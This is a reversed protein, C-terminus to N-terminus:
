ELVRDLQRTPEYALYPGLWRETDAVSQGKRGAYDEVQDRGIPYVAFYRAEPHAFYVGSVSSAPWMAYSETLSVGVADEAALLDFLARKETHDPQAPYGPAPRIGRYRERLLDDKSLHEEPSYGWLERRVQEHMYEACAEALRDALAKTLIANYDDRAAEFQGVLEEVGHGATVVFGGVYDLRGSDRPAVFDALALSPRGAQKPTQQRLTHLVARVEARSEDAYLLLDDGVSNTPFFGVVARAEFRQHAVIEALLAQADAFLERAQAGVVPDDLLAPYRGRLEWVHFFPTWDIYEALTELPISTRVRTGLFSPREIPAAAWDVPLRNAWAQELTLLPRDQKRLFDQRREEQDRAVQMAFSECTQPNLLQSVVGVVRSADVVHVVPHPYQPAIKVATHAASTTAGGILLPLTVGERRMESAVRVMEDLSPTILGSLGIVDAQQERATALIRECPVMVGLDIVEYNNCGLVVGVINKGIDHVDGKVTAMVIRARASSMQRQQKEAEMYPELYAVAQKM